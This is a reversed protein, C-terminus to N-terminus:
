RLSDFFLLHFTWHTLCPHPLPGPQARSVGKRGELAETGTLALSGEEWVSKEEPTRM